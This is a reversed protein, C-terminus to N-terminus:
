LETKKKNTEKETPQTGLKELLCGADGKRLVRDECLYKGLNQEEQHNFYWEEIASEHQEIM